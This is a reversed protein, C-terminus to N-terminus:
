LAAIRGIAFCDEDFVACLGSAIQGDVHPFILIGIQAELISKSVIVLFDIFFALPERACLTLDAGKFPEWSGESVTMLEDMASNFRATTLQM